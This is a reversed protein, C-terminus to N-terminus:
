DPDRRSDVGAVGAARVARPGARMLDLALSAAALTGFVGLAAVIDAPTRHRVSVAGVYLGAWLLLGYGAAFRRQAMHFTLPLAMMGVPTMAFLLRRALALMEADAPAGTMLPYIWPMFVAAATAALGILVAALGAAQAFIARDGPRIPGSTAVKPFLVLAVPGPLFIVARALTAARAFEGATAADFYKKALIVDAHMLIGAGALVALSHLAYIWGAPAEAPEAPGDPLRRLVRRLWFGGAALGLGMAAAHACLALEAAPRVRWILAAGFLLRLVPGAQGSVSLAWFSQTGQLAGVLLPQFFLLALIVGALAVPAGRDIGLFLGGPNRALFFVLAAIGAAAGLRRVAARLWARLGAARGTQAFRAAVHAVWSRGADMPLGLAGLLGLIAALVGYEAAALGRMMVAQFLLNSVNGVQSAGILLLSDRFLRGGAGARDGSDASPSRIPM